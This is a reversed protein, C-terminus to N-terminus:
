VLDVIEVEIKELLAEIESRVGFNVGSAVASITGCATAWRATEAMSLDNAFAGVLGAMLADGNGVPNRVTIAPPRAHITTSRNALWLGDAGTSLAVVEIDCSLFFTIAYLLDRPTSIANGWAYGAEELNPKILFPAAECGLLFPEDSADLYVRGGSANIRQILTAYFSTPIGPPLSGSLVWNAKPALLDSIRNLLIEQDAPSIIPGPENVKTYVGSGAEIIVTNTRTEGEVSILDTRIGLNILGHELQSGITGGVFGLALSDMELKKLARSVNFGKGGFDLHVETPRLVENLKLAPVILTRDLVPNLTLTFIM